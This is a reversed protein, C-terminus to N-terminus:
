VKHGRNLFDMGIKLRKPLPGFWVDTLGVLGDGLVEHMPIRFPRRRDIWLKIM